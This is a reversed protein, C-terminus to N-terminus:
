AKVEVVFTREVGGGKVTVNVTASRSAHVRITRGVVDFTAADSDTTAVYGLRGGLAHGIDDVPTIVLSTPNSTDLEISAVKVITVHFFDVARDNQFAIFALEGEDVESSARRVEANPYEFAVEAGSAFKTVDNEVCAVDDAPVPCSYVFAPGRGSPPPNCAVLLSSLLLPVFRMASVDLL